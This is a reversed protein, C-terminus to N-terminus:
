RQFAMENERAIEGITEELLLNLERPNELMPYHCTGKLHKIDYGSAAYKKLPIENTPFYDVNILHLKHSLRPLLRKETQYMDFLEPIIQLNLAKNSNRFDAIVRSAIPQPTQATVLTERVYKEMTGAYDTELSKMFAPRQKEFSEPLPTAANKFNDIGIFGVINTPHSTATILNISGGMSHGILIVNKLNLRKIVLYIDDAFGQVSWNRRGKGSKGHGPLDLTVVTYDPSFYKVQEAWYTQDISGGHVFLLTSGGDGYVNYNIQADNRKVVIKGDAKQTQSCGSLAFAALLIASKLIHKAM